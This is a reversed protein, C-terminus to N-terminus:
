NQFGAVASFIPLGLAKGALIMKRDLTLIRSAGHNSAVALHLADPGRMGSKADALFEVARAYDEPQPLILSFSSRILDEFASRLKTAESPTISGMRVERGLTSAFEILALHSTFLAHRDLSAVLEGVQLSTEENVILPVLCSTDFYNM